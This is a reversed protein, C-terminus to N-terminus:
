VVSKRDGNDTSAKQQKEKIMAMQEESPAPKSLLGINQMHEELASGIEAVISPMYKGGSKFYGGHPDFVAKLEEVLFTIDGGKRFVASVVRTLAVVWQFQDMNKSNIFMEFPRRSEHETGQNLVIDNITVYFAHESHPTRIKYTSGLLLEPRKVSEHMLEIDPEKPTPKEDKKVISFGTISEELKITM